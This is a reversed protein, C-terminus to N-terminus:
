EEPVYEEFIVTDFGNKRAAKEEDASRTTWAFSPAGFFRTTLKFALTYSHKHNYAIFSPKAWRNLLMNKLLFFLPTRRKENTLFDESLIGRPVNPLIKSFRWLSLPNFSEVVFPGKYTSLMQAAAETVAYSGHDEKIEVLLPVKGDVLALVDSFLPVTDETDGLNIKGLQEATYSAVPGKGDTVRDLDDDHFVVLKGDSSLRVDLEIGYGREVAASFASM